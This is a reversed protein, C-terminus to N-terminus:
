ALSDSFRTLSSELRIALNALLFIIISHELFNRIGRKPNGKIAIGENPYLEYLSNHDTINRSIGKKSSQLMRVTM